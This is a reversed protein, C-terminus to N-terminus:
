SVVRNRGSQKASYLKEDSLKMWEKWGYGHGLETVGVSITIPRDEILPLDEVVARIAEATREGEYAETNTMLILFEEGGIRFLTDKSSINDHLFKALEILVMDGVDHGYTDNISKFHDIDIVCLTSKIGHLKFNAMADKLSQSLQVRNYAGTLSDTISQKKLQAQAKTTERTSIYIFFCVATLTASFRLFVDPELSFWAASIVALLFAVNAYKAPQLPLIFYISFASLYAWFSGIVGLTLLANVSALSISPIVGFLNLALSYKGRWGLWANYIFLSAVSLTLVGGILRGQIFNNIGFPILVTFSVISM